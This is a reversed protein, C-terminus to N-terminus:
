LLSDIHHYIKMYLTQACCFICLFFFFYFIDQCFVLNRIESSDIIHEPLIKHAFMTKNRAPFSRLCIRDKNILSITIHIIFICLVQSGTCDSLLSEYETDIKSNFIQQLLHSCWLCVKWHIRISADPNIVTMTMRAAYRHGFLRYFSWISM